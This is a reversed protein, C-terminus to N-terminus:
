WIVYNIKHHDVQLKPPLTFGCCFLLDVLCSLLKEAISPLTSIQKQLPHPSAGAASAGSEGDNDNDEDEDEIVFQPAQGTPERHVQGEVVDRKWLVEREFVSPESELEFIVPLVRQLVRLCNLVEKTTNRETTGGKILSSAFSTVYKTPASPFTHDSVLNFLRSTIVRILTVINEPAEVL